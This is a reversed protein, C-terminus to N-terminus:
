QGTVAFDHPGAGAEIQCTLKTKTNFREPVIQENIDLMPSSPDNEDYRRKGATKYGLIEVKKEGPAVEVSYDGQEIIAAATPGKGDAPLFSITGKELPKDDCTVRGTVEVLGNDSCGAPLLLLLFLLLGVRRLM